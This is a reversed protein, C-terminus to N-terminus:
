VDFSMVSWAARAAGVTSRVVEGTSLAESEPWATAALSLGTAEIHQLLAEELTKLRTESV